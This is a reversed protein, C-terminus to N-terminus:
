LIHGLSLAIDSRGTGRKEEQGDEGAGRDGEGREAQRMWRGRSGDVGGRWKQIRLESARKKEGKSKKGERVRVCMLQSQCFPHLLKTCRLMFSPHMIQQMRTITNPARQSPQSRMCVSRIRTQALYSAFLVPQRTAGSPNQHETWFDGCLCVWFYVKRHRVREDRKERVRTWIAKIPMSYLPECQRFLDLEHLCCSITIPLPFLQWIDSSPPHWFDELQSLGMNASLLGNLM